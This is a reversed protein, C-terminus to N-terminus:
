RPRRRRRRPAPNLKVHVSRAVLEGSGAFRRAFAAYTHFKFSPSKFPDIFKLARLVPRTRRDFWRRTTDTSASEIPIPFDFVGAPLAPFSSSSVPRLTSRKLLNPFLFLGSAKILPQMVRLGDYLAITDYRNHVILSFDGYFLIVSHGVAVAEM